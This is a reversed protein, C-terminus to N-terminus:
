QFAHVSSIYVCLKTCHYNTGSQKLAPEGSTVTVSAVVDGEKEKKRARKKM